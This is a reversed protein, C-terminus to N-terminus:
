PIRAIPHVSLVVIPPMCHWCHHHTHLSQLMRSFHFGFRACAHCRAVWCNVWTHECRSGGLVATHLDSLRRQGRGCARMSCGACPSVEGHGSDVVVVVEFVREKARKGKENKPVAHHPGIRADCPPQTHTHAHTNRANPTRKTYGM